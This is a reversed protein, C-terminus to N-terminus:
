PVGVLFPVDFSGEATTVTVLGRLARGTQFVNTAGADATFRLRYTPLSLSLLDGVSGYLPILQDASDAFLFAGGTQNALEALTEFDVEASLGITFIRLDDDPTNPDGLALAISDDRRNRCMPTGPCSHDTDEGDTFVVIAKAIGSPITADQRIEANLLDLSEYLPTGGGVLDALSDLTSDYSPPDDITGMNRFPPYVTLPETPIQANTNTGDNAFASLLVWDPGALGGLFAKASFLRAGTPDTGNISQSQDM